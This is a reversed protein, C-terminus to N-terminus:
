VGTPGTGRTVGTPGTERTPAASEAGRSLGTAGPSGAGRASGPGAAETTAPCDASVGGLSGKRGECGAPWPEKERVLSEALTANLGTIGTGCVKPSFEM